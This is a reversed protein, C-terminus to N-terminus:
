KRGVAMSYPGQLKEVRVEGFGAERMWGMCDKGTYDFGAPTEILMNLSMLLGFANESRADDIMADYVILAGGRPLTEYAKRLLMKKESLSWDHLIHGMVLVDVAPLADKFFDGSKFSLRRELGHQAVYREFVPKVQPLDYGFGVLHPHAHAIEATLGGQACGVDAFSRYERWPFANAMARATPLSLGTMARLFQELRAPEAYVATFLDPEGTTIENQPAGTRLAQTLNGWFRYLRANMMELMGGVYSPKNRDLYMETEVTNAYHGDPLRRLMGLAVLADLFDRAGREHLRFAARLDDLSQPGEEALRTFLGLEIASLLTKSAWFASGLQLIKDPSRVMMETM